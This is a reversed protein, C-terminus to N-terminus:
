IVNWKSLFNVLRDGGLEFASTSAGFTIFLSRLPSLIAHAKRPEVAGTYTSTIFGSVAIDGHITQPNYLGTGVESSIHAVTSESGDSRTLVDGPSSFEAEQLIGNVYLFHSRSLLISSGDATSIRVFTSREHVIKHTFMFVASYQQPGVLVNDGVQLDKMMKMSGDQMVVTAIGPFCSNNASPSSSPSTSQRCTSVPGGFGDPSRTTDNVSPNPVPLIGAEINASNGCISVGGTKSKDSSVFGCLHISENNDTRRQVPWYFMFDM